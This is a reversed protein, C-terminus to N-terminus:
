EVLQEGATEQSTRRCHTGFLSKQKGGAIGGM